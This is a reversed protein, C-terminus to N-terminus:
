DNSAHPPAVNASNKSLKAVCGVGSNRRIPNGAGRRRNLCVPARRGLDCSNERRVARWSSAAASNDMDDEAGKFGHASSKEQETLGRAAVMAPKRSEEAVMM